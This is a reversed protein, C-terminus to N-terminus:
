HSKTLLYILSLIPIIVGAAAVITQWSQHSGRGQEEFRIMRKTLEEIKEHTSQHMRESEIRPMVLRASDSLTSRFENVSEFRRDDAQEKKAVSEKISAFVADIAKDTAIIRDRNALMAAEIRKEIADCRADVYERWSVQDM